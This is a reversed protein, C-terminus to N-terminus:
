KRNFEIPVPVAMERALPEFPNGLKDLVHLALYDAAAQVIVSISEATERIQKKIGDVLEELINVLKDRLKIFEDNSPTETIAKEINNEM